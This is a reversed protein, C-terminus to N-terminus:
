SNGLGMPRRQLQCHRGSDEMLPEKSPAASASLLGWEDREQVSGSKLLHVRCTLCATVCPAKLSRQTHSKQLTGKGQIRETSSWPQRKRRRNGGLCFCVNSPDLLRFTVSSYLSHRRFLSAPTCPPSFTIYTITLIPDERPLSSPHGKRPLWLLLAKLLFSPEADGSEDGPLHSSLRAESLHFGLAPPITRPLCVAVATCYVLYICCSSLCFPFIKSCKCSKCIM